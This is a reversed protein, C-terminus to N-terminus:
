FEVENELPLIVIMGDKLSRDWGTIVKDSKSLGKLIQTSYENYFGVQVDQQSIYLENGWFSKREKLVYVKQKNDAFASNPLIMNCLESSFEIYVNSTKLIDNHKLEDSNLKTTLYIGLDTKKVSTIISPITKAADKINCSMGETFPLEASNPLRCVYYIPGKEQFIHVLANEGEYKDSENVYIEYVFGNVQSKVMFHDAEIAKLTNLTKGETHLKAEILDHTEGNYIGTSKMYQLEDSSYALKYQLEDRKDKYSKILKEQLNRYNSKEGSIKEGLISLDNEVKHLESLPICDAEALVMNMEVVAKDTNYKEELERIEQNKRVLEDEESCSNAISQDIDKIQKSYLTIDKQFLNNANLFDNDFEQLEIQLSEVQEEQDKIATQFSDPEFSLINDGNKIRSNSQIYIKNVILSKNLKHPIAIQCLTDSIIKIESIAYNKKIYGSEVKATIVKPTTLYHLSRSVFTFFLMIAFFIVAARNAIQKKNIQM